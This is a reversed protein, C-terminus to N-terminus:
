IGLGPPLSMGGTISKMKEAALAEAKTKADASAAVILDELIEREDEKMLSPDISVKKVEGKGSMVVSVLGGGARGEVEAGDLETQLDAMRSQLQQAQKMIDTLNKM